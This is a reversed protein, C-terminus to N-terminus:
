RHMPVRSTCIFPNKASKKPKPGFEADVFEGGYSSGYWVLLESDIRIPKIVRYFIKGNTQFAIMNQEEEHRPSNIYRLWNSWEPHSGDIYFKKDNKNIRWAYGEKYFDGKKQVKLGKYPGFVMGIPVFTSAFVGLGANPLKSQAIRFLIPLTQESFPSGPQKEEIKSIRDPIKFLPHLRCYPRYFKNCRDCHIDLSEDYAHDAIETGLVSVEEESLDQIEKYLAEDLTHGQNCEVISIAGDRFDLALKFMKKEPLKGLAGDPDCIGPIQVESM